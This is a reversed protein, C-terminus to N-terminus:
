LAATLCTGSIYIHFPSVCPILDFDKYVSYLMVLNLYHRFYRFLSRVSYLYCPSILASYERGSGLSSSSCSTKHESGVSIISCNLCESSFIQSTWPPTYPMESSRSTSATVGGPFPPTLLCIPAYAFGPAFGILWLTVIHHAVLEKFDKRPKELRLVLVILQHCWYSAQMLYYRKLEPTM